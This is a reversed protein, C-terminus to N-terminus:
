LHQCGREMRDKAERNTRVVAAVAWAGNAESGDDDVGGGVAMAVSDCACQLMAACWKGIKGGNRHAAILTVEVSVVGLKMSKVVDVVDTGGVKAVVAYSSTSDFIEESLSLPYGELPSAVFDSCFM